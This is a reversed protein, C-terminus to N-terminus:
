RGSGPTSWNPHQQIWPVLCTQPATNQDHRIPCACLSTNDGASRHQPRPRESFSTQSASYSSSARYGKPDKKVDLNEEQGSLWGKNGNSSKGELGPVTAQAYHRPCFLGTTLALWSEERAGTYKTIQQCYQFSIFLILAKTWWSNTAKVAPQYATHLFCLIVQHKWLSFLSNYYKPM